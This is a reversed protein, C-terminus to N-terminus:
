PSSRVTLDLEVDMMRHRQTLASQVLRRIEERQTLSTMSGSVTSPLGSSSDFVPLWNVSLGYLVNSSMELFTLATPTLLEAILGIGHDFAHATVPDILQLCGVDRIRYGLRELGTRSPKAGVGLQRVLRETEALSLRASHLTVSAPLDPSDIRPSSGVLPVLRITIVQRHLAFPSRSSLIPTVPVIKKGNPVIQFTSTWLPEFTVGVM